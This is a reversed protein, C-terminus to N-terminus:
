GESYQSKTGEIGSNEVLWPPSMFIFHYIANQSLDAEWYSLLVGLFEM